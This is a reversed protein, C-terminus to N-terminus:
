TQNYQFKENKREEEAKQILKLSTKIKAVSPTMDFNAKFSKKCKALLEVQGCIWIDSFWPFNLIRFLWLITFSGDDLFCEQWWFANDFNIILQVYLNFFTEGERYVWFFPVFIKRKLIKKFSFKRCVCFIVQFNINKREEYKSQHTPSFNNM